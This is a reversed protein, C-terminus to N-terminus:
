KGRYLSAKEAEKSYLSLEKKLIQYLFYELSYRYYDIRSVEARGRGYVFVGTGRSGNLTAVKM